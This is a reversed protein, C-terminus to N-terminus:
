FTMFASKKMSDLSVKEETVILKFGIFFRYDVQNDGIMSVLAKTQENIKQIAVDRLRGDGIKKVAGTHKKHFKGDSDTYPTYRERVAKHSLSVSATM